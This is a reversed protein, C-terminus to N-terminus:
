STSSKSTCTVSARAFGESNSFSLFNTPQFYCARKELLRFFRTLKVTVARNRLAPRGPELTNRGDTYVIFLDSGPRYEWRFRANTALLGGDSNYQVLASVFMRPSFMYILRGGVVKATFNGQPVNIWNFSINPEVLLNPIPEVRGDSFGVTHKTGGFFGEQRTRCNAPSAANPELSTSRASTESLSVTRSSNRRGRGSRVARDVGRSQRGIRFPVSRQEAFEIGFTGEAVRTELLGDSLRTFQDVSVSYEYQRVVASSAPRPSFRLEGNNRRIDARRVYGAEPNFHKGVRMDELVVGYRDGGYELQARHSGTDGRLGPTHTNAFYTNINLNEFFSFLGDVGYAQNASARTGYASRNVMILGINSRRLIDRRVRMVSFNTSPQGSADDQKTQIGVLGAFIKRDPRHSARRGPDARRARRRRYRHAPQFVAVPNRRTKGSGQQTFGGFAFIGQGELFFERKEPYFLSFRTLNVQQEDDEVQAFDTNYTFDATLGRTVGVKADVGISATGKNAFPVDAELDTKLSSIGYPKIEFLRSEPPTTLGILTAASSFRFLGFQPPSEGSLPVPNLYSM